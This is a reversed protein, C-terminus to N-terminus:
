WIYCAVKTAVPNNAGKAQESNMGFACSYNLDAAFGDSSPNLASMKDRDDHSDSNSKQLVRVPMRPQSVRADNKGTMRNMRTAVSKLLEEGDSYVNGVPGKNAISGSNDM